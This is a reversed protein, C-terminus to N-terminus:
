EDWIANRRNPAEGSGRDTPRYQDGGSLSSTTIVDNGEM